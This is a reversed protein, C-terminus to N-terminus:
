VSAKQGKSDRWDRYVGIATSIIVAVEFIIGGTSLVFINYVLCLPSKILNLKRMVPASALAFSLSNVFLGSLIFISYWGDWTLISTVVLLATFFIPLFLNTSGMKKRIYYCACKVTSLLNLAVATMANGIMFYHAAFAFATLIQFFLIGKETKMQFSIFGLVVAVWSLAQGIIYGTEGFM